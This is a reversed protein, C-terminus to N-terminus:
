PQFDSPSAKLGVIRCVDWNPKLKYVTSIVKNQIFSIIRVTVSNIVNRVTRSNLFRLPDDEAVSAGITRHILDIIDRIPMGMQAHYKIFQRESELLGLHKGEILHNYHTTYGEITIRGTIFLLFFVLFSLHVISIFISIKRFFLM